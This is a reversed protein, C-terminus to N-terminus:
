LLNAPIMGEAMGSYSAIVSGLAFLAALVLLRCSTIM